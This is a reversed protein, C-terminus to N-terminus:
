HIPWYLSLRRILQHSLILSHFPFFLSPSQNRQSKKTAGILLVHQIALNAEKGTMTTNQVVTERKELM